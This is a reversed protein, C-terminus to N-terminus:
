NDLPRRYIDGLAIECDISRLRIKNELGEVSQYSWTADGNRYFSEFRAEDQSALVYEKFSPLTSYANFKKGRDHGETSDSLVEVILIPNTIIDERDDHFEPKGCVVSLDPYYAKNLVPIFIRMESALVDCPKQLKTLANNLATDVKSVVVNHNYKAGPMEIIKGNDFEHKVEAQEELVLYESLTYTKSPSPAAITM